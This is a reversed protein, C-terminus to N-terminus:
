RKARGSKKAATRKGRSRAADLLDDFEDGQAVHLAKQQRKTNPNNVTVVVLAVREGM